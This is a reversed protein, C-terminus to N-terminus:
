DGDKRLRYGAKWLYQMHATVQSALADYADSAYTVEDSNVPTQEAKGARSADIWNDLAQAAQALLQGLKANEQDTVKNTM